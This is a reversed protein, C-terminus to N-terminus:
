AQPKRADLDPGAKAELADLLVDLESLVSDLKSEVGDAVGEAEELQKLLSSVDDMGLQTDDKAPESESKPQPQPVSPQSSLLDFLSQADITPQNKAKSTRTPETTGRPASPDSDAM